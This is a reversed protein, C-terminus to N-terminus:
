PAEPNEQTFTIAARNRERRWIRQWHMTQQQQQQHQMAQSLEPSTSLASL